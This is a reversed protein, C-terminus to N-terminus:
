RGDATVEQEPMPEEDSENAPLPKRADLAARVAAQDVAPTKSRRGKTNKWPRRYPKLSRRHRKDTNAVATLDYLDALAMAERSLPYDWGNIAACLHSAPDLALREVLGWAERWSLTGDVISELGLGFRHRWDYSLAAYHEEILGLLARIGGPGGWGAAVM